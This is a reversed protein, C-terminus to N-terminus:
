NNVHKITVQYQFKPSERMRQYNLIHLQVLGILLQMDIHHVTQLSAARVHDPLTSVPFLDRFCINRCVQSCHLVTRMKGPM